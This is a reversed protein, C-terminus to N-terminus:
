QFGITFAPNLSSMPDQFIMSVDKGRLSALRSPTAARLEEGALALRDATVTARDPLLRMIALAVTSKGSGSEGVLCLTKGPALAFSVSDVARVAGFAVSLNAIDLLATM